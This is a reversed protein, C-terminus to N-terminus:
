QRSDPQNGLESYMDFYLIFNTFNGIDRVRFIIYM